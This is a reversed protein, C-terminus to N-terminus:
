APRHEKWDANLEDFRERSILGLNFTMEIEGCHTYYWALRGGYSKAGAIERMCEAKTSALVEEVNRTTNM